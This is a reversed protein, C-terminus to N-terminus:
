LASSLNLLRTFDSFGRSAKSCASSFAFGEKFHFGATDAAGSILHGNFDRWVAADRHGHSPNDGNVRLLLGNSPLPSEGSFEGVTEVVLSRGDLFFVVGVAHGFGVFGKGVVLPLLLFLSHSLGSFSCSLFTRLIPMMAWMSAPLVVVVSRM